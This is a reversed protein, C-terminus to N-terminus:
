WRDMARWWQPELATPFGIDRRLHESGPPSGRASTGTHSTALPRGSMLRGVAAVVAMGLRPRSSQSATPVSHDTNLETM